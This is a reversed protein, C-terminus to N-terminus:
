GDNTMALLLLLQIISAYGGRIKNKSSSRSNRHTIENTKFVCLDQTLESHQRDQSFAKPVRLCARHLSRWAHQDVLHAVIQMPQQTPTSHSEGPIIIRMRVNHSQEFILSTRVWSTVHGDVAQFTHVGHVDTAFANEWQRERGEEDEEDGDEVGGM